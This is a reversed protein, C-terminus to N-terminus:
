CGLGLFTQFRTAEDSLDVFDGRQPDPLEDIAENDHIRLAWGKGPPANWIALVDGASSLINRSLFDNRIRSSDRLWLNPNAAVLHDYICEVKHFYNAQFDCSNCM